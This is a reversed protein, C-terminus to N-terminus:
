QGIVVVVDGVLEQLALLDVRILQAARQARGRQGVLQHRHQAPRRQLVLADLRHEVPHDVVERRREVHRRDGAEIGSAVSFDRTRGVRALRERCEGELDRGIGEDPLEREEADVGARELRPGVDEVRGLAGLLPDPAQQLQVGIV